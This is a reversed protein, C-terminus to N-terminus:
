EPGTVRSEIVDTFNSRREPDDCEDGERIQITVVDGMVLGVKPWEIIEQSHSVLRGNLHMELGLPSHPIPFQIVNVIIGLAGCDAVGCSYERRGNVLVDLVIM